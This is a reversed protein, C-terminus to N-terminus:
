GRRRQLDLLLLLLVLHLLRRRGGRLRRPPAAPPEAAALLFGGRRLLLFRGGSLRSGRSSRRSTRTGARGDRGRRGRHPRGVHLGVAAGGVVLVVLRRRSLAPPLLPRFQDRLGRLLTWPLSWRVDDCLRLHVRHRRRQVVLVARVLDLVAHADLELAVEHAERAGVENTDALGVAVADADRLGLEVLKQLAANGLIPGLADFGPAGDARHTRM